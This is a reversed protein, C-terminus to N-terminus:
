DRECACPLSCTQCIYICNAAFLFLLILRSNHKLAIEALYLHNVLKFFSWVNSFAIQPIKWLLKLKVYICYFCHWAFIFAIQLNLFLKICMTHHLFFYLKCHKSTPNPRVDKPCVDKLASPRSFNFLFNCPWDWQLEICKYLRM